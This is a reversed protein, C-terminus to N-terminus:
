KKRRKVTLKKGAERVEKAKQLAENERAEEVRIIEEDEETLECTDFYKGFVAPVRGYLYNEYRYNEVLSGSTMLKRFKKVAETVTNFAEANMSINVVGESSDNNYPIELFSLVCPYCVKKRERVGPLDAIIGSGLIYVGSGTEGDIFLPLAVSNYGADKSLSEYLEVCKELYSEDNLKDMTGWLPGFSVGSFGCANEFEFALEFLDIYSKKKSSSATQRNKENRFFDRVDRTIIRDLLEESYVSLADDASIDRFKGPIRGDRKVFRLFIELFDEDGLFGTRKADCASKLCVYWDEQGSILSFAEKSGSRSVEALVGAAEANKRTKYYGFIFSDKERKAWDEQLGAILDSRTM